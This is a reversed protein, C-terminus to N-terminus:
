YPWHLGLASALFVAMQGRSLSANPCYNGGGCGGTIGAAVLAEVFPHFPHGVPVDAFTAFAPTPSLIRQWGLRCSRFRHLQNAMTVRIRYLHMENVVEYRIVQLSDAILFSVTQHGVSGTSSDLGMDTETNVKTATNHTSRQVRISVDAAPDTDYVDCAVTKLRAGTPLSIDAIYTGPQNSLPAAFQGFYFVLPPATSVFPVLQLSTITTSQDGPGFAHQPPAPSDAATPAGTQAQAHCPVLAVLVGVSVVIARSVPTAM